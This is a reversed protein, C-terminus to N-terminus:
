PPTVPHRAAPGSALGLGWVRVHVRPGFKHLDKMLVWFCQFGTYARLRSTSIRIGGFFYVVFRAWGVSFFLFAVFYVVFHAWGVSFFLFADVRSLIPM